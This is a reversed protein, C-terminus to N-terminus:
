PPEAMRDLTRANFSQAVQLSNDECERLRHRLRTNLSLAHWGPTALARATSTAGTECANM